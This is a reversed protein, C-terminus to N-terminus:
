VIVSNRDGTAEYLADYIRILEVHSKSAEGAPIAVFATRFGASRLGAEVARGKTVTNDDAVIIALDSKPLASRAFVGLGPSDGSTLAIDYSRPGLNVRFSQM